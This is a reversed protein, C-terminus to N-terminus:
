WTVALPVGGVVDNVIEHSSLMPISYAKSEGNISLGLVLEDPTMETDAVGVDVFEPDLIAPIADFGLLTILKLNGGVSTPPNGDSSPQLRSG